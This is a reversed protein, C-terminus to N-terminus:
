AAVHAARSVAKIAKERRAASLRASEAAMEGKLNDSRALWEADAEKTIRLPACPLETIRPAVGRAKMNYFTARSYGRFECWESITYSGKEPMVTSETKTPSTSM